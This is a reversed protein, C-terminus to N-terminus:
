TYFSTCQPCMYLICYLRATHLDRNQICANTHIQVHLGLGVFSLLSDSPEKLISCQRESGWQGRAERM